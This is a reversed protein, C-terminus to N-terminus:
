GELGRLRELKESAGWFALPEYSPYPYVGLKLEISAQHEALHREVLRRVSIPEGSCINIPGDVEPHELVRALLEAVSTVPLYDRLQEGRSMEFTARGERLATDLLSLLSKPNQGVGHMYFLRAWQLVFPQERKLFQLFRHLTDKALAYPVDPATVTHESLCGSARAGYELCTGTVLVQRVGAEVLAKLFAPRQGDNEERDAGDQRAEQDRACFLRHLGRTSREGQDPERQERHRPLAVVIRAQHKRDPRPHHAFLRLQGEDRQQDGVQGKQAAPEALRLPKPESTERQERQDHDRCPRVRQSSGRFRADVHPRHLLCASLSETVGLIRVGLHM